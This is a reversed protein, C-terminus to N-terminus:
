SKKFFIDSGGGLFVQLPDGPKGYFILFLKTDNQWIINNLQKVKKFFFVGSKVVGGFFFIPVVYSEM